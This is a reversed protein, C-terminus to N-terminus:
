IWETDKLKHFVECTDLYTTKGTRQMNEDLLEVRLEQFGREYEFIHYTEGQGYEAVVIDNVEFTPYMGDKSKVYENSCLEYTMQRTNLSRGDDLYFKEVFIPEIPADGYFDRFNIKLM